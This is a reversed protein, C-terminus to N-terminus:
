EESPHTQLVEWASVTGTSSSSALTDLLRSDEAVQPMDLDALEHM